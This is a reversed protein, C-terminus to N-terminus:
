HKQSTIPIKDRKLAMDREFFLWSRLDLPSCLTHWIDVYMESISVGRLTMLMKPRFYRPRTDESCLSMHGIDKKAAWSAKM